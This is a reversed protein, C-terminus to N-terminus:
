VLPKQPFIISVVQQKFSKSPVPAYKNVLESYTMGQYYDKFFYDREPNGPTTQCYLPNYKKINDIPTSYMIMRNELEKYLAEGKETNFIITSYNKYDTIQPFVIKLAKFDAITIDGTRYENRYKCNTSCCPRLCVQSLFLRNYEDREVYKVKGTSLQYKSTHLNLNGRCNLTKNRFSYSLDFDKYKRRLYDIHLKFIEPSGVGHCILDVALLQKYDKGLFAKLGAVQCPTGVFVVKRNDLLFRKVDAYIFGITSQVYKSKRFKDIDNLSFVSSHFVKDGDLECGIIAYESCGKLFANCIETFAGGSSSKRWVKDDKSIAAYGQSAKRFSRVNDPKISPCVKECLGCNICNDKFVVPYEFGEKDTEMSICQKPCKNMCAGCGTCDETKLFDLM